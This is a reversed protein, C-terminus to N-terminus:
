VENRKFHHLLHHGVREMQMLRSGKILIVDGAEVTQVLRQQLQDLDDFSHVHALQLKKAAAVFHPGYCLIPAFGDATAQELLKEHASRSASALEQMDGLVAVKREAKVTAVTRLAAVMSAPNANYCDNYLTSGNGLQLWQGRWEEANVNAIGHLIARPPIDLAFAAAAAALMNSVNHEGALPLRFEHLEQGLRLRGQAGQMGLLEVQNLGVDADSSLTRSYSVEKCVHPRRMKSIYPDDLNVIFTDQPALNELLESKAKAVGDLDEVGDLHVPMVNTILRHTPQAIEALRRIEGFQNMGMELVVHSHHNRLRLLCLPLGLLNNWNKWTALPTQYEALIATLITKTTTKGNAGTIAVIPLSFKQRWAHALDGLAQLTDEVEFWTVSPTKQPPKRGTKCIVATAGNDIANGIYHHGDHNKGHIAIFLDGRRVMRSDTTIGYCNHQSLGTVNGATAEAIWSLPLDFDEIRFHPEM